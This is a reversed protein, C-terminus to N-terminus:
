HEQGLSNNRGRQAFNGVFETCSRENVQPNKRSIQSPSQPIKLIFKRVGMPPSCRLLKPPVGAGLDIKLVCPARRVAILCVDFLTARITRNLTLQQERDSLNVSCIFRGALACHRRSQGLWLTM